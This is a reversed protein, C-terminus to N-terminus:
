GPPLMTADVRGDDANEYAHEQHPEYHDLLPSRPMAMMGSRAAELIGFPKVLKVFAEVRSPKASLELIVCDSSVDVVRGGFLRTLETLARLHAFTQRLM